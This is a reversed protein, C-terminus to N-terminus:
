VESKLQWLGGGLSIPIGVEFVWAIAERGFTAEFRDMAVLGNPATVHAGDCMNVALVTGVKLSEVLSKNKALWNDGFRGIDDERIRALRESVDDMTNPPLVSQRRLELNGGDRVRRPNRGKSKHRTSPM